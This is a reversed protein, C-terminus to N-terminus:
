LFFGIERLEDRLTRDFSAREVLREKLLSMGDMFRRRITSASGEHLQRAVEEFSKGEYLHLWIVQRSEPPVEDLYEKLASRLSELTPPAAVHQLAEGSQEHMARRRRLLDIIINRATVRAIRYLATPELDSSRYRVLRVCIESQLEEERM